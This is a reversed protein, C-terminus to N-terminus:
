QEPVRDAGFTVTYVSEDIDRRGMELSKTYNNNENPIISVNGQHLVDVEMGSIMSDVAEERMDNLGSVELGAEIIYGGLGLTSFGLM